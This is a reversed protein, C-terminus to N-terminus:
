ARGGQSSIGLEQLARRGEARTRQRGPPNRWAEHMRIRIRLMGLWQMHRRADIVCGGALPIVESGHLRHHAASHIADDGTMGSQDPGRQYAPPQCLLQTWEDHIALGNTNTRGLLMGIAQTHRFDLESHRVEASSMTM